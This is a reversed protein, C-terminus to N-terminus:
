GRAWVVSGGQSVVAKRCRPANDKSSEGCGLGGEM